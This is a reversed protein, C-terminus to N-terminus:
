HSIMEKVHYVEIENHLALEPDFAECARERAQQENEAEIVVAVYQRMVIIAKYKKM